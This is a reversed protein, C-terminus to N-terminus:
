INETTKVSLEKLLDLLVGQVNEKKELRSYM